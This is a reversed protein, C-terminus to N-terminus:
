AEPNSDRTKRKSQFLYDQPGAAFAGALEKSVVPVWDISPELGDLVVAKDSNLEPRPDQWRDRKDGNLEPLPDQWLDRQSLIKLM